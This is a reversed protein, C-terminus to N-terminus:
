DLTGKVDEVDVATFLNSFGQELEPFMNRMDATEVLNFTTGDWPTISGGRNLNGVYWRGGIRIRARGGVFAALREQMDMDCRYPALIDLGKM